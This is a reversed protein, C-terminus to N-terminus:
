NQITGKLLIDGMFPQKTEVLEVSNKFQQTVNSCVKAVQKQKANIAKWLKRGRNASFQATVDCYNELQVTSM